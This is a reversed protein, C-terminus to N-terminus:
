RGGESGAGSAGGVRARFATEVLGLTLRVYKRLNSGLHNWQEKCALTKYPPPLVSVDLLLLTRVKLGATDQSMVHSGRWWLSSGALPKWRVERGDPLVRMTFRFVFFTSGPQRPKVVQYMHKAGSLGPECGVSGDEPVCAAELAERTRAVLADETGGKRALCGVLADVLESGVAPDAEPCPFCEDVRNNAFLGQLCNDFTVQTAAELARDPDTTTITTDGISSWLHEPPAEGPAVLADGGSGGPSSSVFTSRFDFVPDPPRSQVELSEECRGDATVEAPLIGLLLTTLLLALVRVVRGVGGDPRSGPWTHAHDSM